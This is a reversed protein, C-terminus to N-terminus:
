AHKCKWKKYTKRNGHAVECMSATRLGNEKCFKYLNRIKFTNGNPDTIIWDMTAHGEHKLVKFAHNINEKHTTWELNEPSNNTKIGDKHNVEAKAFPKPGNFASCVLFHIRMRKDKGDKCLWAIPYGKEDFAEKMLRNFGRKSKIRKVRGYNSILYIGEYDLVDKWIEIM